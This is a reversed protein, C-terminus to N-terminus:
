PEDNAEKDYVAWHIGRLARVAVEVGCGRGEIYWPALNRLQDKILSRLANYKVKYDLDNMPKVICGCSVCHDDNDKIYRANSLCEQCINM